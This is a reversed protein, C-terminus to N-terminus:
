PRAIPQWVYREPCYVDVTEPDLYRFLKGDSLYYVTGAPGVAIQDIRVKGVIRNLKSTM